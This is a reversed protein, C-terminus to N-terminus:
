IAVYLLKINLTYRTKRIYSKLSQLIVFFFRIGGVDGGGWFFIIM